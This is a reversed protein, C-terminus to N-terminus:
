APYTERINVSSISGSRASAMMALFVESSVQAISVARPWRLGSPPAGYSKVPKVREVELAPRRHRREAFSRCCRLLESAEPPRRPDGGGSALRGGGRPPGSPGIRYARQAAIDIRM